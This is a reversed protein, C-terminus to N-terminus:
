YQLCDVAYGAESNDKKLQVLWDGHLTYKLFISEQFFMLKCTSCYKYTLFFLPPPPM